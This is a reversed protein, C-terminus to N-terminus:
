IERNMEDGRKRMFFSSFPPHSHLHERQEPVQRCLFLLLSFRFNGEDTEIIVGPPLIFFLLV